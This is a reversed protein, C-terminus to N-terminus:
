CIVAVATMQRRPQKLKSEQRSGQGKALKLLDTIATSPKLCYTRKSAIVFTFTVWGVVSRVRLCTAGDGVGFDGVVVLVDDVVVRRVRGDGGLVLLGHVGGLTGSELAGVGLVGDRIGGSPQLVVLLLDVRVRGHGLISGDALTGNRLVHQIGLHEQSTLYLKIAAKSNVSKKIRTWYKAHGQHSVQLMQRDISVYVYWLGLTCDPTHQRIIPVISNCLAVLRMEVRLSPAYAAGVSHIRSTGVRPVCACSSSTTSYTSSTEIGGVVISLSSKAVYYGDNGEGLM